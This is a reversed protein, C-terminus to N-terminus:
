EACFMPCMHMDSQVHPPGSQGCPKCGGGVPVPSPLPTAQPTPAPVPTWVPTPPQTYATPPTPPPSPVLTPTISRMSTQAPYVQSARPPLSPSSNEPAYGSVLGPHPARFLSAAPAGGLGIAASGILFLGGLVTVM